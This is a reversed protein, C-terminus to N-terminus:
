IIPKSPLQPGRLVPDHAKWLQTKMQALRTIISTLKPTAKIKADQLRQEQMRQWKTADEIIESTSGANNNTITQMMQEFDILGQEFIDRNVKNYVLCDKPGATILQFHYNDSPLHNVTAIIQMSEQANAQLFSILHTVVTENQLLPENKIDRAAETM